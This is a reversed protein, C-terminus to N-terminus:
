DLAVLEGAEIAEPWHAAVTRFNRFFKAGDKRKLIVVQNGNKRSVRDVVVTLGDTAAMNAIGGRKIIFNARPFQIHQYTGEPKEIRFEAGEQVTVAQSYSLQGALLITLLTFFVRKM